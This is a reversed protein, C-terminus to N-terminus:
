TRTVYCNPYRKIFQILVEVDQFLTERNGAWLINRYWNVVDHVTMEVDAFCPLKNGDVSVGPLITTFRLITSHRNELLETINPCFAAGILRPDAVPPVVTGGLIKLAEAYKQKQKETPGDSLNHQIDALKVALAVPHWKLNMLYGPYAEGPVKTLLNLPLFLAQGLKEQIKGAPCKTDELVDHLWAVCKAQWGEVANAVAEPHKIYPTKGDRRFQGKHWKTATAKAWRIAADGTLVAKQTNRVKASKSRNAVKTKASPKRAM